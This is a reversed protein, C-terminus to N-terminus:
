FVSIIKCSKFSISPLTLGSLNVFCPHAFLHPQSPETFSKLKTSFLTCPKLWWEKSSFGNDTATLCHGKIYNISHKLLHGQASQNNFITPTKRCTGPKQIQKLTINGPFLIIATTNKIEQTLNARINWKIETNTHTYKSACIINRM